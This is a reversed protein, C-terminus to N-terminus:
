PFVQRQYPRREAHADDASPSTKPVIDLRTKQAQARQTIDIRLLNM